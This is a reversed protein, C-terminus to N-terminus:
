PLHLIPPADLPVGLEVLDESALSAELDGLSMGKNPLFILFRLVGFSYPIAVVSFKPRRWYEFEMTTM